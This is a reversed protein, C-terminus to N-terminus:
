SRSSSEVAHAWYELMLVMILQRSWNGKGSRHEDLMRMLRARDFLDRTCASPTRFVDRVTNGWPGRLLQAIPTPFGLKRRKGVGAPLRDALAKKLIMKTGFLGAKLSQPVRTALEVLRHDMFPARLEMSPAMSLLDSRLLTSDVLWTRCDLAAMRSISEPGGAEDYFKRVRERPDTAANAARAEPSYLQDKVTTDFHNLGLYRRELPQAALRLYKAFKSSEPFAGALTEAVPALRPLLASPIAAQALEIGYMTRYADYGLWTEDSGEGSLIVTVHERAFRCVALLQGVMPEALPQCLHGAAEALVQGHQESTLRQEHHRTGLAQAVRRAEDFETVGGPVDVGVCFSDVGHGTEQKVLTAAIATSDVGGSLLVGLPVDSRRQLKVADDFLARIEETWQDASPGYDPSFQLKWYARVHLGRGAEVTALTAPPLKKIGREMCRPNIIYGLTMYEDLADPDLTTDVGPLGRLAKVESAFYLGDKTEAYYLPKMGVRDRCLVLRQLSADWIAIAFMGILRDVFDLGWQRYALLIAETDSHTQPAHGFKRLEDFLELYNYVEGNFVITVRGDLLSMPQAGDEIDIIALRRHALGVAGDEFFGEGDPGRHALRSAMYQLDARSAPKQTRWNFQGAIGCM